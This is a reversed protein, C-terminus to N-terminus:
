RKQGIISGINSTTFRSEATKVRTENRSPIDRFEFLAVDRTIKVTDKRRMKTM